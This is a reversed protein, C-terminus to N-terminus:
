TLLQSTLSKRRPVLVGEISHLFSQHLATSIGWSHLAVDELLMTEFMEWIIQRRIERQRQFASGVASRDKGFTAPVSPQFTSLHKPLPPQVFVGFLSLISSLSLVRVVSYIEKYQCVVLCSCTGTGQQLLNILFFTTIKCIWLWICIFINLM